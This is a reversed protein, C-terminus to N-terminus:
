VPVVLALDVGEERMRAAIAPATAEALDGARPAYGMTSYHTPALGGVVGEAVLEVLRELPFITNLDAEAVEHPFHPHAIALRGADADRPLPRWSSDGEGAEGDFPAQADRLYLGGTTVVALRCAALPKTVPAWPTEGFTPWPYTKFAPGYDHRAILARAGEWWPAYRARFPAIWSTDSKPTV